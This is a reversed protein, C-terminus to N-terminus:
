ISERLAILDKSQMIVPSDDLSYSKEFEDESPIREYVARKKTVKMHCMKKQKECKRNGRM